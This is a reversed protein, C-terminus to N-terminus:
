RLTMRQASSIAARGATCRPRMTFRVQPAGSLWSCSRWSAPSKSVRVCSLSCGPAQASGPSVCLCAGREPFASLSEVLELLRDLVHDANAKCDFEAVYDYISKLYSIPKVQTSYRM